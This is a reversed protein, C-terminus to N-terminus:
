KTVPKDSTEDPKTAVRNGTRLVVRKFAEVGDRVDLLAPSQTVSNLRGHQSVFRKLRELKVAFDAEDPPGAGPAAGWLITTDGTSRLKYNWFRRGARVDPEADATLAFLDLESWAPGFAAIIAASGAIRPEAWIEGEEPPRTQLERMEIRPMWRLRDVSLDRSPLRAAEADIPVLSNPGLRVAALPIRYSVEIKILNPPSKEISEISRIWPNNALAASLPKELQEASDLISLQSALQHSKFVERVIDDRVWSPPATITVTDPTVQYRPDRAISPGVANWLASFGFGLVSLLGIATLVGRRAVITDRLM